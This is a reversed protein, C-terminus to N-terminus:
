HHPFTPCPQVSYFALRLGFAEENAGHSFTFRWPTWTGAAPKEADCKAASDIDVPPSSVLDPDNLDPSNESMKVGLLLRNEVTTMRVYCKSM